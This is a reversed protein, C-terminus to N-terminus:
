TTQTEANINLTWELESILEKLAQMLVSSTPPDFVFRAKAGVYTKIAEFNVDDDPIFDTWISNKDTISFGKSPGVGVRNLIVFVTNIAMIIDPDFSDDDEHIGIQKKVSTLISDMNNEGVKEVSM